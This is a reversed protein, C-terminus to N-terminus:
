WVCSLYWWVAVLTLITYSADTVAPPGESLSQSNGPGLNLWFIKSMRRCKLLKGIAMVASMSFAREWHPQQWPPCLNKIKTPSHHQWLSGLLWLSGNQKHPKKLGKGRFAVMSYWRCDKEELLCSRIFKEPPRNVHIINHLQPHYPLAARASYLYDLFARCASPNLRRLNVVFDRVRCSCM